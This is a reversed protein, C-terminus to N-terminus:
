RFSVNNKTIGVQTLRIQLFIKWITLDDSHQLYNRFSSVYSLSLSVQWPFLQKVLYICYQRQSMYINPIMNRIAIFLSNSYSKALTSAEDQSPRLEIGPWSM